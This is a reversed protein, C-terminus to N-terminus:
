LEQSFSRFVFFNVGSGDGGAGSFWYMHRAEAECALCIDRIIVFYKRKDLTKVFSVKQMHDHHDQPIVGVNLLAKCIDAEM